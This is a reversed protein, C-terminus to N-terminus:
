LQLLPVFLPVPVLKVTFGNVCAVWPSYVTVTVSAFPQLFLVVPLISMLTHSVYTGSNKEGFPSPFFSPKTIFFM